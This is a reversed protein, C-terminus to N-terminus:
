RERNKETEKRTCRWKTSLKQQLEFQRKFYGFWYEDEDTIRCIPRDDVESHLPYARVYIVGSKGEDDFEMIDLGYPLVYDLRRIAYRRSNTKTQIGCLLGHHSILTQNYAKVAELTGRGGDQMDAYRYAGCNPKLMIVEVRGGDTLVRKLHVMHSHVLRRLNHGTLKLNKARGFDADYQKIPYTRLLVEDIPPRNSSDSPRNNTESVIKTNPSKNSNQAGRRMLEATEAAPELQTILKELLTKLLWKRNGHELNSISGQELGVRAGLEGETLGRAERLDRFLKGYEPRNSPLNDTNRM